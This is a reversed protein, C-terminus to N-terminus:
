RSMAFPKAIGLGAGERKLVYSGRAPKGTPIRIVGDMAPEVESVVGGSLSYVAARSMRDKRLSPPTFLLQTPTLRLLGDWRVGSRSIYSTPIGPATLIIGNQGQCMAVLKTGTWAM